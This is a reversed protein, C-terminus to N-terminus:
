YLKAILLMLEAYDRVCQQHFENNGIEKTIKRKSYYPTLLHSELSLWIIEIAKGIIKARQDKTANEPVEYHLKIRKM